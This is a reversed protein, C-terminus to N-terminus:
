QKAALIQQNAADLEAQFTLLQQMRGEAEELLRHKDELLQVNEVELRRLEGGASLSKDEMAVNGAISPQKDEM